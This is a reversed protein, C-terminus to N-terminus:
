GSAGLGGAGREMAKPRNDPDEGAVPAIPARAAGASFFDEPM